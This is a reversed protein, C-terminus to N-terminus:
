WNWRVLENAWAIPCLLVAGTYKGCGGCATGHHRYGKDCSKMDIPPPKQALATQALVLLVAIIWTRM